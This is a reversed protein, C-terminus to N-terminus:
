FPKFYRHVSSTSLNSVNLFFNANTIQTSEEKNTKANQLFFSVHCFFEHIMLLEMM